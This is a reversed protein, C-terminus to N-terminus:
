IQRPKRYEIIGKLAETVDKDTITLHNLELENTQLELREKISESYNFGLQNLHNKVTRETDMVDAYGKGISAVMQLYAEKQSQLTVADQKIQRAVAEAYDEKLAQIKNIIELTDDKKWQKVKDMEVGVDSLAEKLPKLAKEAQKLEGVSVMKNRYRKHIGEYADAQKEYQFLAKNYSRELEELSNNYGKTLTNLEHKLQNIMIFIKDQKPAPKASQEPMDKKRVKQINNKLKQYIRKLMNM